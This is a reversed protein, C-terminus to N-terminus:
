LIAFSMNSSLVVFERCVCRLGVGPADWGALSLSNGPRVRLAVHSECARDGCSTLAKTLAKRLRSAFEIGSGTHFRPWSLEQWRLLRKEMRLAVAIARVDRGSTAPSRLPQGIQATVSWAPTRSRVAKIKVLPVLLELPCRNPRISLVSFANLVTQAILKRSLSQWVASSIFPITLAESHRNWQVAPV